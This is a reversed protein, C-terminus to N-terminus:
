NLNTKYIAGWMFYKGLAGCVSPVARAVFLLRFFTPKPVSIDFYVKFYPVNNSISSFRCIIVYSSLETRFTYTGLLMVEFYLFYNDASNKLYVFHTFVGPLKLM